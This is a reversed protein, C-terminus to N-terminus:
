PTEQEQAAIWAADRERRLREARQDMSELDRPDRKAEVVEPRTLAVAILGAAVESRSQGTLQALREVERGVAPTIRVKFEIKRPTERKARQRGRLSASTPGRAKMPHDGRGALARRSGARHADAGPRDEQLDSFGPGAEKLTAVLVRFILPGVRTQADWVGKRFREFKELGNPDPFLANVMVLSAFPFHQVKSEHGEALYLPVHAESLEKLGTNFLEREEGFHFAITNRVQLYIPDARWRALVDRLGTWATLGDDKLHAIM